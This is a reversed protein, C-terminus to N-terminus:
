KKWHAGHDYGSQVQAASYIGLDPFHFNCSPTCLCCRPSVEVPLIMSLLSMTRRMVTPRIASNKQFSFLLQKHLESPNESSQISDFSYDFGSDFCHTFDAVFCRVATRVRTGSSIWLLEHMGRFSMSALRAVTACTPGYTVCSFTCTLLHESIHSM